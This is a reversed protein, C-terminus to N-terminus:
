IHMNNCMIKEQILQIMPFRINFETFQGINSTCTIIGNHLEVIHQCISLGLGANKKDTKTSFFPDFINNIVDEPIGCGNDSILIEVFKNNDSGNTDIKIEIIGNESLAEISNKILNIFLQKLKNEHGSIYASEANIQKKIIINKSKIKYNLLLLIEDLILTVDTKTDPTENFKTFSLLEEIINHIRNIENEIKGLKMNGDSDLNKLKLLEIYNQVIGLPNNIEHAVGAALEAISSIKETRQMYKKLNIDMSIDELIIITGLFSYDEDRFPLISIKLTKNDGFLSEELFLKSKSTISNLIKSRDQFPAKKLIDNFHRDPQNYNDSKTSNKLDIIQLAAINILYIHNENDLIIVGIPINKIISENYKKFYFLERNKKKLEESTLVFSYSMKILKIRDLYKTKETNVRKGKRLITVRDSFVFIEDINHSIYIISKGQEKLSIIIPYIKEMEDPTLKSSIEDLILLQPDFSLVRALEVMHQKAKSLRSLPVTFDFNLNLKSFLEETKKHLKKYDIWSFWNTKMQGAFINETANLSPIINLHQYVIGIGNEIASKPTFNNIIKNNYYITGSDKKEAGSLIKVLSTKGARHAGVLAHIEGSHLNFDVGRLAKIDGYSLHIDSMQLIIDTKEQIM